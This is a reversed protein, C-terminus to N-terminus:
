LDLDPFTEAMAKTTSGTNQLVRQFKAVNANHQEHERMVRRQEIEVEGDELQRLGRQKMVQDRHAKDRFVMNLGRDRRGAWPTDGWAFATKAPVSVLRDMGQDCSMCGPCLPSLDRKEYPRIVETRMSCVPCEYEYMPM